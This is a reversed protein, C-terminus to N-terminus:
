PAIKKLIQAAGNQLMKQALNKGLIRPHKGRAEDFLTKTGDVSGVFARLWIEGEELVAFAGLPVQCSGGLTQSFAREALVCQETAEDKLVSLFEAMEKNEALIEVGLAGQGPAPLSIELPLVARIRANFGLRKLGTAALIIADYQGSDLKKLRTELNGRLSKVKLHPFHKKLQSERRLSSTGVVAGEPMEQLNEFRHSVFADFPNERGFIVPLAFGEPMEMPVDKMSHVAFHARKEQLAVELEKIFLGKGGINSLPRDLIQDGKTTTGVIHIPTQPHHKQLLNQVFEAQWMALRSERSILVVPANM